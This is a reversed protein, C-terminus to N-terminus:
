YHGVKPKKSKPPEDDPEEDELNESQEHPLYSKEIFLEFKKITKFM